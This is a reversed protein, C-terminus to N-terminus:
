LMTGVNCRQTANVITTAFRETYCWTLCDRYHLCHSFSIWGTREHGEYFGPYFTASPFECQLQATFWFPHHGHFATINQERQKFTINCPVIRLSRKWRLATNCCQQSVTEFLLFMTGFVARRKALFKSDDLIVTYSYPGTWLFGSIKSFKKKLRIPIADVSFWHIYKNMRPRNTCFLVRDTLM